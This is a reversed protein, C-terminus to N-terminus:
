KTDEEKDDTLDDEVDEALGDAVLYLVVDITEEECGNAIQKGDHHDVLYAELRWRRNQVISVVEYYQSEM